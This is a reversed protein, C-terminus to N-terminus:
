LVYLQTIVGNEEYFNVTRGTAKAAILQALMDFFINDKDPCIKRWGGVSDFYVWANRDQDIAWLGIVHSNTRWGTDTISNVGLNDWSDIGCQGYAIRFFGSEGWGTGWSNKCIWCGLSDDYGVITVCHGGAQDGTQHSYVGSKYSFFDNYVVFCACVPGKTAIWNKIDAVKGTLVTYGDIRIVKNAWATCLGSCDKKDLGSKYPYCAEDTVGKAAFADFAANPWWGSSCNAGKERGYCFFLHAESLDVGLNPNNYQVQIQTEITAVTGFAVCSGCAAQDRIPTVYNKGGVNRLDYAAPAGIAGIAQSRITKELSRWSQEIEDLSTEGEPPNVGLHKKQESPSLSSVSTVGAEWPDGAEKLANRIEELSIKEDAM